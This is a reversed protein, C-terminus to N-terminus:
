RASRVCRFGVNPSFYDPRANNRTWVRLDYGYDAKSGGRMYRYHQGEYVNSTWQWVNGAMDYAGYASPADTTQYGGYSQGNFFGVPTTNGLSGVGKEFPDGSAYYNAESKTLVNGWPYPRGDTGRAAKEWQLETPLSAGSFECYSEAGFWTVITMPHNAYGPKAAFTKGDFDLRLDADGLPVHLWDGPDIREEHRVGHFVDGAYYGVVSGNSLKIAGSALAANLYKAYQDNTVDTVMIEFASAVTAQENHIGAAFDGAPVKVWASSNVGTDYQNVVPAGQSPSCGAALIALSAALVMGIALRKM